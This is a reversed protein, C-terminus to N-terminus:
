YYLYLYVISYVGICLYGSIDVCVCTKILKQPREHASIWDSSEDAGSMSTEYTKSIIDLILMLELLQKSSYLARVASLAPCCKNSPCLHSSSAPLSCRYVKSFAGANRCCSIGVALLVIVDLAVVAVVVVISSLLWWRYYPDLILLRCSVDRFFFLTWILVPIVIFLRCLLPLFLPLLLPLPNPPLLLVLLLLFFIFDHSSSSLSSSSLSCHVFFVSFSFVILLLFLFIFVICLVLFRCPVLLLLHLFFGSFGLLLISGTIVGTLHGFILMKSQRIRM